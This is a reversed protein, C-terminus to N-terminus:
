LLLVREPRGMFPIKGAIFWIHASKSSEIPHGRDFHVAQVEAAQMKGRRDKGRGPLTNLEDRATKTASEGVDVVSSDARNLGL